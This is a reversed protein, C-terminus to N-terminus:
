TRNKLTEIREKYSRSISEYNQAKFNLWGIEYELIESITKELNLVNDDNLEVVVNRTEIKDLLNDNYLGKIFEKSSVSINGGMTTVLGMKKSKEFVEKVKKCIIESDVHSKDLGHSKTFDSRGVIVGSLHNAESTNLIADINDYATATECLFHFDTNKINKVASIFKQFAYETEVMPAIIADISNSVCNNIDTIAECGGIKVYMKLGSLETIRRMTIVDSLIAGEDEFSQKIGVVNYNKNLNILSDSLAKVTSKENDEYDYRKGHWKGTIKSSM